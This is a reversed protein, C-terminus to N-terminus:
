QDNTSDTTSSEEEVKEAKQEDRTQYWQERAKEVMKKELTSDKMDIVKSFYFVAKQFNKMKRNLEGLLYLVRIESLDTNHYYAESYAEELSEMALELFRSEEEEQENKRFIWALRLQLGALVIAKEQKLQATYMALKYTQIAQKVTRENSFDHPVWKSTIYTKITDLAGPPFHPSFHESYSYGCDPCVKVFYLLPSYEEDKYHPCFDEETRELKIFRSRVKKTKFSHNCAPCEESKDYLPTLTQEESMHVEGKTIDLKIIFANFSSTMM